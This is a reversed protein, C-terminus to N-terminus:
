RASLSVKEYIMKVASILNLSISFLTLTCILFLMQGNMSDPCSSLEPSWALTEPHYLLACSGPFSVPFTSTQTPFNGQMGAITFYVCVTVCVFIAVNTTPYKGWQLRWFPCFLMIVRNVAMCCQILPGFLYGGSAAAQSIGINLSRWVNETRLSVASLPIAWFLISACILANSLTKTFCLKQFSSMPGRISSFKYFLYTNVLFGLLSTQICCYSIVRSSLSVLFLVATELDHYLM